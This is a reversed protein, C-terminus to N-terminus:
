VYRDLIGRVASLYSGGFLNLHNLMHYLNYLDRRDRYGQDYPNIERYADYFAPSFGGFLETMALEAEFHGVYAAPDLIWAKGDPGCVANGSWLDGHILSPFEPEELFSDLHDLLATCQRRMRADLYEEAMKFQPRLRCDRFFEIWREKPTNIQPSAGIYNDSAFGFRFRDATGSSDQSDEDLFYGKQRDARHLLALERGFVEWYGKVRPAAELYELLLFSRKKGKETGFGLVRPVGITKTGRLAELGKAEAEFFSLNKVTNCKMFVASGDSLSLRYSENIDGGYVPRCSVAYLGKGALVSLAEDLTNGNFAEM